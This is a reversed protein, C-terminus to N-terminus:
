ATAPVPAAAQNIDALLTVLFLSGEGERTQLLIDGGMRRALDRAIGLGSGHPRADTDPATAPPLDFLKGQLSAAVGPGTDKVHFRLLVKGVEDTQGMQVSVTVKGKETFKLANNVLNSLIQHLRLPDLRVSVPVGEDVTHELM